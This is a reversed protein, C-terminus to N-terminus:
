GQTSDTKIPEEKVEIEMLNGSILAAYAEVAGPTSIKQDQVFNLVKNFDEVELVAKKAM